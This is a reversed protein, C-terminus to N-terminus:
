APALHQQFLIMKLRLDLLTQPHLVRTISGSYYLFYDINIIFNRFFDIQLYNIFSLAFIVLESAEKIFYFSHMHFNVDSSM